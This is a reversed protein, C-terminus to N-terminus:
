TMREIAAIRASCVFAGEGWEVILRLLTGDAPAALGHAAQEAVCRAGVMAGKGRAGELKLAVHRLHKKRLQLRGGGLRM